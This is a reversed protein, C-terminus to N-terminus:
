ADGFDLIHAGELQARAQEWENVKCLASINAARNALFSILDSPDVHAESWWQDPVRSAALPVVGALGAISSTSNRLAVLGGDTSLLKPMDFYSGVQFECDVRQLSGGGAFEGAGGFCDSQDAALLDWRKAHPVFATNGHTGRDMNGLWTDLAWLRIPDSPNRLQREVPSPLDREAVPLYVTGYHHGELVNTAYAHYTHAMDDSVYVLAPDFVTLGAARILLTSVLESICMAASEMRRRLNGSDDCRYKVVYDRRECTDVDRATACTVKRPVWRTPVGWVHGIDQKAYVVPVDPIQGVGDVKLM